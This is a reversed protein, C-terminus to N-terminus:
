KTLNSSSPVEENQTISELVRISQQYLEVADNTCGVSALLEAKKGLLVGMVNGIIVSNKEKAPHLINLANDLYTISREVNFTNVVAKNM